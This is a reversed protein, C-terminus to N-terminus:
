PPASGTSKGVGQRFEQEMGVVSFSEWISSM